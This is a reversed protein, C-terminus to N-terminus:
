LLIVKGDNKEAKTAHAIAAKFEALPFSKGTNPVMQGSAMLSLVEGFVAGKREDALSFLLHHHDTTFPLRALLFLMACM